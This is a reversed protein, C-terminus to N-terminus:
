TPIENRNKTAREAYELFDISDFSYEINTPRALRVRRTSFFDEPIQLFVHRPTIDAGMDAALERVRDDFYSAGHGAEGLYRMEPAQHVLRNTASVAFDVKKGNSGVQKEIAVRGLHQTEPIYELHHVVMCGALVLKGHERGGHQERYIRGVHKRQETKKESWDILVTDIDTDEAYIEDLTEVKEVLSESVQVKTTEIEVDAEESGRLSLCDDCANYGGRYRRRIRFKRMDRGCLKCERRMQVDEGTKLVSTGRQKAYKRIQSAKELPNELPLDIFISERSVFAEIDDPQDPVDVTENYYDSQKSNFISQVQSTLEDIDTSLKIM